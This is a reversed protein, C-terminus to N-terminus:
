PKPAAAALLKDVTFSKIYCECACWFQWQPLILYCLKVIIVIWSDGVLYYDMGVAM